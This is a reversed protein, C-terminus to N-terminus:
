GAASPSPGHRHGAMMAEARVLDQQTNINFFAQGDPDLQALEEGEVALVRLGAYFSVMRQEGQALAAEVAPLCFERRYIALLPEFHDGRRPVIIDALGRHAIMHELLPRPVFPMDCAIALVDSGQAHTLATRLGQLAGGGPEADSVLRLGLYRLSEPRNTTILLDDALGQIRELVHEILPRGALPILAKDNGMRSSRGGAQVAISLMAHNYVGALAKPRTIYDEGIPM